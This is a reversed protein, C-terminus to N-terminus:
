ARAKAEAEEAQRCLGMDGKFVGVGFNAARPFSNYANGMAAISAGSMGYADLQWVPNVVGFGHGFGSPLQCGCASGIAFGIHIVACLNM